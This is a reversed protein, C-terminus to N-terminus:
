KAVRQALAKAHDLLGGVGIEMAHQLVELRRTFWLHAGLTPIAIMLGAATTLLAKWIGGSLTTTSVEAGAAQMSGFLEVMGIVTGLLGFLPAVQAIFSLLSLWSEYRDLEQVAARSAEREAHEPDDQLAAAAVGIVRGLPSDDEACTARVDDLGGRRLAERSLPLVDTASVKHRWFEISKKLIVALAALSCLYLPVMTWGATALMQWLTTQEVPGGSDAGRVNWAGHWGDVDVREAESV